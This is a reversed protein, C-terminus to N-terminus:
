ITTITWNFPISGTQSIFDNYMVTVTLINGSYAPALITRGNSDTDLYQLISNQPIMNSQDYVSLMAAVIRNTLFQHAVAETVFVRYTTSYNSIVDSFQLLYVM